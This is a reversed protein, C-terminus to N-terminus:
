MGSCFKSLAAKITEFFPFSKCCFHTRYAWAQQLQIYGFINQFQNSVNVITKHLLLLVNALNVTKVKVQFIGLLIQKRCFCVTNSNGVLVVWSSRIDGCPFWGPAFTNLVCAAEGSM